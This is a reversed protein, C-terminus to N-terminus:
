PSYPHMAPFHKTSFNSHRATRVCIGLPGLCAVKMERRSNAMQLVPSADKREAVREYRGYVRIPKEARSCQAFYSARSLFFGVSRSPRTCLLVRLRRTCPPVTAKRPLPAARGPGPAPAEPRTGRARRRGGESPLAAQRPQPPAAAPPAPGRLRRAAATGAAAGRTGHLLRRRRRRRRGGSGRPQRRRSLARPQGGRGTLAARPDSAGGEERERGSCGRGLYGEGWVSGGWVCQRPEAGASRADESM